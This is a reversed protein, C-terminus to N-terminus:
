YAKQSDRILSFFTLVIIKFDLTLSWNRVYFKDLRIRGSMDSFQATEGRYGKAQALGTIGPKVMHRQFFRDIKSSFEENLKIPHPRPGVISMEGKFVNIFQPLEDMSTKRLISGIRTVRPDSKTAQKHDSDNNIIMTRFKFCSFYKNGRGHRRQKFFVPGESDLKILLAIIPVLWSFICILVLSSFIVDFSRKILRNVESDLPITNISIVPIHGYKEFTLNRGYFNSFRSIVNIKILNNEAYDIIEKTQNESLNSFNCFILDVANQKCFSELHYISARAKKYNDDLYGLLNYGLNPNKNIHNELLRSTEGYGIILVNRINFGRARYYRLVYYFLFRWSNLLITFSLFTYFLHGRSYFYSKTIVWMSFIIALNTVLAILVQNIHDLVSAERNFEDLRFVIFLVVWTINLFLLLLPYNDNVYWFEFFKIYNAALFSANLLILDIALFVLPFFKSFRRKAM